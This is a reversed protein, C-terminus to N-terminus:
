GASGAPSHPLMRAAALGAVLFGVFETTMYASTYSAPFGYWNWYPLNTAMAAVLGVVAAFGIRSIRSEFRTQAMLWTLLLAELLETLFETVLQPATIARAGPPHYILLGSPNAALKQAYLQM